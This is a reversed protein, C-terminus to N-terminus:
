DRRPGADLLLRLLQDVTSGSHRTGPKKGAPNGSIGRVWCGRADRGQQQLLSQDKLQVKNSAIAGANRTVAAGAEIGQALQTKALAHDSVPGALFTKGNVIRTLAAALGVSDDLGTISLLGQGALRALTSEAVEITVLRRGQARRERWRRTAETGAARRKKPTRAM